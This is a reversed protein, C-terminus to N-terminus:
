ARAPEPEALDWDVRGTRLFAEVVPAAERASLGDVFQDPYFLRHLPSSPWISSVYGGAELPTRGSRLAVWGGVCAVTGCPM